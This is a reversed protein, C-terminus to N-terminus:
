ETLDEELLELMEERTWTHSGYPTNITLEKAGEEVNREFAELFSCWVCEGANRGAGETPHFSRGCGTCVPMSAADSPLMQVAEMKWTSRNLRWVEIYAGVEDAKIRHRTDYRYWYSKGRGYEDSSVKKSVVNWRELRDLSEKMRRYGIHGKSALWQIPVQTWGENWGMYERRVIIHMLTGLDILADPSNGEIFVVDKSIQSEVFAYGDKM